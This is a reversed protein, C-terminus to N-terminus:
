VEKEMPALAEQAQLPIVGQAVPAATCKDRMGRMEGMPVFLAEQPLAGDVIDLCALWKEKDAVEGRFWISFSPSEVVSLFETSHLQSQYSSWSLGLKEELSILESFFVPPLIKKYLGREMQLLKTTFWRRVIGRDSDDFEYEYKCV